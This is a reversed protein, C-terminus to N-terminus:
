AVSVSLKGGFATLAIPDDPPTYTHFVGQGIWDGPDSELYVYNGSAPLYAANPTWLGSPIPNVPGAPGTTDDNRWHITGRLAASAGECHQEFHLDIATLETGSYTVSDVTFSGTLTNCGRGEGSWDLGGTGADNFPYRVLNDYTGLQFPEGEPTQMDAIWWEDGTVTLSLHGPAASVSIVATAQTYHYKLGKGIYDGSDSELEIFNPTPKPPERPPLSDVPDEPPATPALRDSGCATIAAVVLCALVLRGSSRALSTRNTSYNTMGKPM